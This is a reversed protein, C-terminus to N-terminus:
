RFDTLQNGDTDFKATKGSSDTVLYVSDDFYIYRYIPEIIYNLDEDLVGVSGLGDDPIFIELHGDMCYIRSTSDDQLFGPIEKIINENSDILVIRNNHWNDKDEIMAIFRDPNVYHINYYSTSLVLNLDEDLLGNGTEADYVRYYTPLYELDERYFSYDFINDYILPVLINLDKDAMGYKGGIYIKGGDYETFSKGNVVINPFDKELKLIMRFDKINPFCGMSQYPETNVYIDYNITDGVPNKDIMRISVGKYDYSTYEYWFILYKEGNVDVKFFEQNPLIDFYFLYDDDDELESFLVENSRETMLDTLQYVSTANSLTIEEPDEEPEETTGSSEREYSRKDRGTDKKHCGTIGTFITLILIATLIKKM